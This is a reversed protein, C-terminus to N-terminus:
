DAIMDNENDGDWQILEPQIRNPNIPSGRIMGGSIDNYMIM